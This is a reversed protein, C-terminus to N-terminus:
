IETAQGYKIKSADCSTGHTGSNDARSDAINTVCTPSKATSGSRAYSSAQMGCRTVTHLTPFCRHLDFSDSSM